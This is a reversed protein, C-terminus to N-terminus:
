NPQPEFHHVIAVRDGADVRTFVAAIERAQRDIRVVIGNCRMEFVRGPLHVSLSLAVTDGEKHNGIYGGARFGSTSWNKIPCSVEDIRVSGFGIEERQERRREPASRAFVTMLRKLLSALM